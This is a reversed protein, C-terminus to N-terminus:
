GFQRFRANDEFVREGGGRHSRRGVGREEGAEIRPPVAEAVVQGVVDAVVYGGDGLPEGSGAVARGGEHRGDDQLTAVTEIQTELDIVVIEPGGRRAGGHPHDGLARRLCGGVPCQGPEVPEVVVLGEKEPDMEVIGVKGIRRGRRPGLPVPVSGIGALDGVHVRLDAAQQLVRTRRAVVHHYRGDAIM